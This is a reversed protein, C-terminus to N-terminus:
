AALFLRIFFVSRGNKTEFVLSELFIWYKGMYKEMWIVSDLAWAKADSIPTLSYLIYEGARRTVFERCNTKAAIDNAIKPECFQNQWARTHTCKFCTHTYTICIEWSRNGCVRQLYDQYNCSFDIKNFKNWFKDVFSIRAREWTHANSVPTRTHLVSEGVWMEVFERCNAMATALFIM